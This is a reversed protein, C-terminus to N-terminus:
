TRPRRKSARPRPKSISCADARVVPVGRLRDQFHALRGGASHQLELAVGPRASRRGPDLNCRRDRRLPALRHEHGVILLTELFDGGGTKRGGGELTDKLLIPHHPPIRPALLRFATIVPMAVDDRVTVFQPAESENLQAMAADDRPDVEVVGATEYVIEPQYDGLRDLKHAVKDFSAQRVVVRMLEEGGLKVGGREITQSGGASIRFRISPFGRQDQSRGSELKGCDPKRNRDLARAM